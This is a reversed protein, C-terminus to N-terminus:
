KKAPTFAWKQNADLNMAVLLSTFNTPSVLVTDGSIIPSSYITGGILRSNTVDGNASITYLTDGETTLYIKDNIVAPPSVISKNPQIRWLATGDSANLAYFYGSLDGAYVTSKVLTPGSWVWDQTNYRWKIAGTSADIAIIESGFTGVYITGDTNVAPSSVIGGGLNTTQWIQRGSTSEFAYVTHDMSAVFICNCADLTAPQAWIPGGTEHKWVQKGTMDLAYIFHDTSPQFIMDQTVLPSGVLRNTSGSFSWNELGTAPNISYLKKDYSPVLLQGDPSLVPNTYFTTKANAKAPYRWVESGTNLDVAYVETGAALFAKDATALLGHWGTSSYITSSCASILLSFFIIAILLTLKKNTM